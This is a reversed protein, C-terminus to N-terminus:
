WQWTAAVGTIRFGYIIGLIFGLIISLITLIYFFKIYKKIAKINVANLVELSFRVYSPNKIASEMNAKWYTYSGDSECHIEYGQNLDVGNAKCAEEKTVEDMPIDIDDRLRHLLKELKKTEM